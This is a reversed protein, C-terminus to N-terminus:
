FPGVVDSEDKGPSKGKSKQKKVKAKQREEGRFPLATHALFSITVSFCRWVLFLSTPGIGSQGVLYPRKNPPRATSISAQWSTAGARASSSGPNGPQVLTSIPVLM